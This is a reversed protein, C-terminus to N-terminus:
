LGDRYVDACEAPQGTVLSTLKLQLSIRSKWRVSWSTGAKFWTDTPVSWKYFQIGRFIRWVSFFQKFIRYHESQWYLTNPYLIKIVWSFCAHCLQTYHWLCSVFCDHCSRSMRPPFLIFSHESSGNYLKRVRM